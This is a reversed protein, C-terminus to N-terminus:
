RYPPSSLTHRVSTGFVGFLICDTFGCACPRARILGRYSSRALVGGPQCARHSQIWLPRSKALSLGLVNWHGRSLSVVEPGDVEAWLQLRSGSGLLHGRGDSLSGCSGRQLATQRPQLQHAPPVGWTRTLPRCAARLGAQAKLCASRLHLTVSKLVSQM